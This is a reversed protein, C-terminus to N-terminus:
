TVDLIDEEPVLVYSDPVGGLIIAEAVLINNTLEFTDSSFPALVKVQSKLKIYVKYKTQNIGQTEFETKFDMSSVSLPIIKLTTGPGAQSLIKSGLLTGVPVSLTDGKMASYERQLTKSIETVLLNMKRTDAQLLDMKGDKNVERVLLQSVDLQKSFKRHIATNVTRSIIAQAKIRAISELNPEITMKLWLGAALILGCLFLFLLTFAAPIGRRRKPGKRNQRQKKRKIM